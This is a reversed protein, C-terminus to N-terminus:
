LFDDLASVELEGELFYMTGISGSQGLPRRDLGFKSWAKAGDTPLIKFGAIERSATMSKLHPEEAASQNGWSATWSIELVEVLKNLIAPLYRQKAKQFRQGGDYKYRLKIKLTYLTEIQLVNQVKQNQCIQILKEIIFNPILIIKWTIKM